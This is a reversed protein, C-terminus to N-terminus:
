KAVNIFWIKIERMSMPKFIYELKEKRSKISARCFLAEALRLKKKKRTKAGITSSIM